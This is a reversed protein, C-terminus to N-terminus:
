EEMEKIQKLTKEQMEQVEKMQELTREAEEESMQPLNELSETNVGGSSKKDSRDALDLKTSITFSKAEGVVREYDEPKLLGKFTIWFEDGESFKWETPDSGIKGLGSIPRGKSDLLQLEAWTYDGFFSEWKDETALLKVSVEIKTGESYTPEGGFPNPEEFTGQVVTAEATEDALEVYDSMKGLVQDDEATLQVKTEQEVGSEPSSGCGSLWLSLTLLLLLSQPKMNM